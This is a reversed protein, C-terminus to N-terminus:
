NLHSHKTRAVSGKDICEVWNDSEWGEEADEFLDPEEEIEEIEINNQVMQM